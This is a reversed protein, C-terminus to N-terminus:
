RCQLLTASYPNAAHLGIDEKAREDRDEVRQLRGGRESM